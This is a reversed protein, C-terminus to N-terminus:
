AAVMSPILPLDPITLGQRRRQITDRLYLLPSSCRLRCTTFVSAFLALARSGQPSRTGQSIKRLIVWHRLAREAENNTLPWAPYDLVRFIAEWDNLFEQGLERTKLHTSGAMAECLKKLKTLSEHHQGAISVTGGDPGIRAQYVANILENLIAQVQQGDTQSALTYSDCLGKAKRLLHAWCRLRKLYTRYLRYGDSMLHGNFDALADLFNNFIEKTRYGVLYLATSSSVFVWLWLRYRAEPHSTEDAFVLSERCLDNILQAEVPEVARASEVICNQLTGISLQLGFVDWLFHKIKRRTVRMDMALYVILAALDPGILRWETLGVNKWDSADAPARWPETRNELGCKPCLGLYYLHLIVILRVGPEQTNGFELNVMQFGTYAKEVASLDAQCVSCFGCPHHLTNTVEFKQTRGFGQAGQQRGPKRRKTKDKSDTQPKNIVGQAAADATDTFDDHVDSSEPHRSKNEELEKDDDEQHTDKEWPALSGSPRSSNTPNQNLRELAEKLDSVLKISLGALADPDQERLRDIFNEDIQLLEHEKLYM